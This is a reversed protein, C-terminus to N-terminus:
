GEIYGLAQLQRRLDQPLMPAGEEDEDAILSCASARAKHLLVGMRRDLASDSGILNHLEHPDVHLEYVEKGGPYIKCTESKEPVRTEDGFSEIYKRGDIMICFRDLPVETGAKIQAMMPIKRDPLCGAMVPVLSIGDVGLSLDLGLMDMITPLLDVTSVPELNRKMGGGAAKPDYILFPVHIIESYLSHGHEAFLPFHEWFEEGHDSLVVVVTRDWLELKDLRELLDAVADCAVRIGGDYAAQVYLSESATLAGCTTLGRPFLPEGRSLNGLRGSPFGQCFLDRTYPTHPEYTHIFLFFPERRRMSLWRKSQPFSDEVKGWDQSWHYEHFGQELGTARLHAGGTFALCYYGHRRLVEALMTYNRPIGGPTEFDLYRSTFFKATAPLTWPSSTHANEFLVFGRRELLSDMRSSTPRTAYGYCGLRDARMTDLDILIVNPTSAPKNTDFFVIPECLGVMANSGSLTFRIADIGEPFLQGPVSIWQWQPADDPDMEWSERRLSKNGAMLDLHLATQSSSAWLVTTWFELHSAEPSAPMRFELIDGKMLMVGWRTSGQNSFPAKRYRCAVRAEASEKRAVWRLFARARSLEDQEAFDDFAMVVVSNLAIKSGPRIHHSVEIWEVDFVADGVDIEISPRHLEKTREQLRRGAGGACIGVVGEGEWPARYTLRVLIREGPAIRVPVRTRFAESNQSGDELPEGVVRHEESFWTSAHRGHIHAVIRWPGAPTEDSIQDLLSVFPSPEPSCGITIALITIVIAVFARRM